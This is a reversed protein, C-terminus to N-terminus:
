LSILGRKKAFLNTSLTAFVVVSISSVPMLVAAVIPSLLGMVAFSLGVLNYIFSILFSILIINISTRSFKIFDYLRNISSAELIADCAPSFNNTDETVAIGV